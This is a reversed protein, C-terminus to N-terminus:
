KVRRHLVEDSWKDALENLMDYMDRNEVACAIKFKKKIEPKARGFFFEADTKKAKQKKVM